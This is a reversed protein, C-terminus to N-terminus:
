FDFRPKEAQSIKKDLTPVKKEVVPAVKSEVPATEEVVKLLEPYATKLTSLRYSVMQQSIGLRASIERQKLGQNYLEAIEELKYDVMKKDKQQAVKKNWNSEDTDRKDWLAKLMVKIMPNDSSVDGTLILEIASIALEGALQPDVTYCDEIQDLVWGYVIGSKRVQANNFEKIM